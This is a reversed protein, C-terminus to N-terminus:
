HPRTTTPSSCRHGHGGSGLQQPAGTAAAELVENLLEPASAEPSRAAAMNRVRTKKIRQKSPPSECWWKRGLLLQGLIESAVVFTWPLLDVLQCRQDVPRFKLIVLRM